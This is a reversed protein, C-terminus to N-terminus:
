VTYNRTPLVEHHDKGKRGRTSCAYESYKTEASASFPDSHMLLMNQSMSQPEGFLVNSPLKLELSEEMRERLQRRANFMALISNAYLRTMSFEMSLYLLSTPQVVYLAICMIAAFSTLLGTAIFYQILTEVVSETRRTGGNSKYLIVCMAAAITCDLLATSGFGIYIVYEIEPSYGFVTTIKRRVITTQIEIQGLFRLYPASVIGTLFINCYSRHSRRNNLFNLIALSPLSLGLAYVAALVVFSQVVLTFRRPLLLLNQSLRWIQSLYFFQVLVVLVAQVAALAKFKFNFKLSWLVQPGLDPYGVLLLIFSYVMYVGFVLNLLDLSCIIAVLSKRFVSDNINTTYYQYAQRLTIGFLITGLTFGFFAGGITSHLDQPPM